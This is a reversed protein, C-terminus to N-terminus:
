HQSHFLTTLAAMIDAEDLADAQDPMGGMNQPPAMEPMPSQQQMPRAQPQMPPEPMPRPVLFFQRQRAPVQPSEEAFRELRYKKKRRSNGGGRDGVQFVSNQFIHPDFVRQAM